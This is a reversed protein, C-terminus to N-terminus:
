LVPRRLHQPNAREYVGAVAMLFEDSGDRGVLQLGVPLGEADFGAPVSMAPLGTASILTAARMWDLYTTMPVGAVELPYELTADFPAVQVAPTVLLDHDEFFASTARYLRARARTASRLEDSTLEMGKRLNWQLAPKLEKGHQLYVDEYGAAFDFARTTQFVEDADRLDPCHEVVEAGLDALLAAQAEVVERVNPDVPVDIGFDLTFGVRLGALSGATLTPPVVVPPATHIGSAPHPGSLVSMMLQLDEVTRAIAGKRSIWAWPDAGGLPIRGASPRLGVLNCFSAPTRISGGMDSADGAPQIGAAVAAAM